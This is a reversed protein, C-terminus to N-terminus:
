VCPGWNSIIVLIDDINTEGDGNADGETGGWNSLVVLIDDITVDEDGNLDGDCPVAPDIVDVDGLITGNNIIEGCWVTQGNGDFTSGAAVVLTGVYMIEEDGEANDKNDVVLVTDGSMIELRGIPYNDPQSGDLGDFTEGLDQSMAEITSPGDGNAFLRLTALDMNYNASDSIAIDVHGGISKVYNEHGWNMSANPGATYNGWIGMGDGPLPESRGPVDDYNGTINGDNTLNGYQYFTGLHVNISADAHNYVDGVCHVATAGGGSGSGDNNASAVITSYNDLVGPTALQIKGHLYAYGMNSINPAALLSLSDGPSHMTFNGSLGLGGLSNYGVTLSCPSTNAKMIAYGTINVNNVDIYMHGNNSMHLAGGIDLSSDLNLASMIFNTSDGSDVQINNVKNLGDGLILESGGGLKVQANTNLSGNIVTAVVSKNLFDIRPESNFSDAEGHIPDHNSADYIAQSWQDYTSGTHMNQYATYECDDITGDGDSDIECEDPTGDGDCDDSSGGAIDCSDPVSNGNCDAGGNNLDCIDLVGNNDCDAAGDALDCSDPTGNGDCDDGQCEDPVDNFDCDASSGEAIDCEDPVNNNNCDQSFGNALDISDEVGNGNCDMPGEPADIVLQAPTQWSSVGDAERGQFLAEFTISSGPGGLVTLQAILVGNKVGDSSNHNASFCQDAGPTVFWTGNNAFLTGGSEFPVWDMGVSNLSNGSFPFGNAHLAGITVYTDWEMDPAFQFFNSNCDVSTPGANGDQYFLDTTSVTKSINSNGAVANLQNGSDVDAYVRVTWCNGNAPDILNEGVLEYSMGVLDGSAPTILAGSVAVAAAIVFRSISM